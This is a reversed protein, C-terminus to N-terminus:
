KGLLIRTINVVIWNKEYFYSLPFTFINVEHKLTRSGILANSGDFSLKATWM